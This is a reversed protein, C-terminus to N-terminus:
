YAGNSQLKGKFYAAKEELTTGKIKQNVVGREFTDPECIVYLEHKARTVATYLLERQIMTNHSQHFVVFVREWESGQSKHVTLAYSLLVSNIEAATDLTVVTGSDLMEVELIHSSQNVKEETVSSAAELFADISDPDFYEIGAEENPKPEYGWYDLTTSPKKAAKGLYTGNRKIERIVADEKDFLVLDGVSFYHKNYGAVVEYVIKSQTKAIHNAIHKNLEITGLSKNFPILIQDEEPNYQGTDYASTFFKAVTLLAVDPHLKKKWPHLTLKGQTPHQKEIRETFAPLPIGNRIDTALAIIPSELAQRYVQTLEVVPLELLKFGLIAAGFVPPLQQIDGVFIFQVSHPLADCLQTYLDTSIMSSEDFVITKIESPLPNHSNRTPEFKISTKYKDTEEDYIEYPVPQYELLKHITICNNKLDDSMARKLNRVARRTFSTLVIGPTNVNLYKHGLTDTIIPIHSTETLLTTVAGKQCTTKGTGAAGILVCSKGSKALQIFESQEKNYTIVNGYQNTIVNENTNENTDINTNSQYTTETLLRESRECETKTETETNTQPSSYHAKVKALLALLAPSQSM